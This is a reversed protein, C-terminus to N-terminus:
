DVLNQINNSAFGFSAVTELTELYCVRETSTGTGTHSGEQDAFNAFFVRIPHHGGERDDWRGFHGIGDDLGVVGGERDM